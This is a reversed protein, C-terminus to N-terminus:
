TVAYGWADSWDAEIYKSIISNLESQYLGWLRQWEPHNRDGVYARSAAFYLLLDDCYNPFPSRAKGYGFPLYETGLDGNDGYTTGCDVSSVKIAENDQWVGTVSSIYLIGAADGGAWTGSSLTGVGDVTATAGSTGGTITNGAAIETTGGSDFGLMASGPRKIYPFYLTQTSQYPRVRVKPLNGYGTTTDCEMFVMYPRQYDRYYEGTTQIKYEDPIGVETVPDSGLKTANPIHNYYNTSSGIITYVSYETTSGDLSYEAIAQLQTLPNWCRNVYFEALAKEVAAQLWRTVMATTWRTTTSITVGLEYGIDTILKARTAGM